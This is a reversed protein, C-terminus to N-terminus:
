DMSEPLVRPRYGERVMQMARKVDDRTVHDYQRRDVQRENGVEECGAAKTVRRFRSKSEYRKGDAPHWTPNISDSVVFPASAGKQKRVKPVLRKEVPCWIFSQRPM